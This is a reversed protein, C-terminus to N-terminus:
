SNDGTHTPAALTSDWTGNAYRHLRAVGLDPPATVASPLSGANAVNGSALGHATPDTTTFYVKGRMSWRGKTNADAVSGLVSLDPRQWYDRGISTDWPFRHVAGAVVPWAEYYSPTVGVRANDIATGASDEGSYTNDVRQVVWGNTAAGVNRGSLNWNTYWYFRGHDYWSPGTNNAAEIDVDTWAAAGAGVINGLATSAADAVDRVTDMAGGIARTRDDEL